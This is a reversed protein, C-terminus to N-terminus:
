LKFETPYLDELCNKLTIKSKNNKQIQYTEWHITLFKPM